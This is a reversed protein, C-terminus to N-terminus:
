HSNNQRADGIADAFAHTAAGAAAVAPVVVAATHRAAPPVFSTPKRFCYVAAVAAAAVKLAKSSGIM